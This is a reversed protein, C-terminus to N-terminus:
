IAKLIRNKKFVDAATKPLYILEACQDEAPFMLFENDSNDRIFQGLESFFEDSVWDSNQKFEWHFESDTYKFDLTASQEDFDVRSTVDTVPFQNDTVSLHQHFLNAYDEDNEICETDFHVIRQKAHKRLLQYVDGTQNLESDIADPLVKTSQLIDSIEQCVQKKLPTDPQVGNEHLASQIVGKLIQNGLADPLVDTIQTLEDFAEKERQIKLLQYLPVVIPLFIGIGIWLWFGQFLTTTAITFVAAFLLSKILSKLMTMAWFQEDRYTNVIDDCNPSQKTM